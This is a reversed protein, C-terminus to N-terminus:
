SRARSGFRVSSFAAQRPPGLWADRCIRTKGDLRMGRAVGPALRLELDWDLTGGTYLRIWQALRRHGPAGPQLHRFARADLPGLIVRFKQTADWVRGGLPMGAGLPCAGRAQLRARADGPLSLWQGVFQRVTAPVRFYWSLISALGRAHRTRAALLGAFQLKAARDVAAEGGRLEAPLGCLSGVYAGFGDADARDQGIVPQGCAWARYFLGIMRHHFLDLFRALATDGAHRVRDRVYETFHLPMPGSAGLLGIVQTSLIAPAEATSAQCASVECPVFALEAPQSLRVADDAPRLARGIRPRRPHACEILRLAQAFDFRWPAAALRREVAVPDPM